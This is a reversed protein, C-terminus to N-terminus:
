VILETYNLYYGLIESLYSTQFSHSTFISSQKVGVCERFLVGSDIAETVLLRAIEGLYMGSIMKEFLQARPNVSETDLQKDAPTLPLINKSDGFAELNAVFHDCFVYWGM